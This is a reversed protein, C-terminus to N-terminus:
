DVIKFNIREKIVALLYFFVFTMDNTVRTGCDLTLDVNRYNGPFKCLGM